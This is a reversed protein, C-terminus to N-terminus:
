RREIEIDGRVARLRLTPATAPPEGVGAVAKLHRGGQKGGEIALTIGSTEVKGRPAEAELRFFSAADTEIEIDGDGTTATIDAKIGLIDIDGDATEVVAPATVNRLKIDGDAVNVHVPGTIRDLEVDSERSSVVEVGWGAPITVTWDVEVLEERFRSLLGTAKSHSAVLLVGDPSPEIKFVLDRAVADAQAENKARPYRQWAVVRVEGALGASVRVDGDQNDIKLTGSADAPLVKDVRRDIQVRDAFALAPFLFLLLTAPLFRM